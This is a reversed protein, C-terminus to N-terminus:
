IRRVNIHNQKYMKLSNHLKKKDGSKKRQKRAKKLRRSVTGKM